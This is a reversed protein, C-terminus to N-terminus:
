QVPPSGSSRTHPVPRLHLGSPMSTSRVPRPRPTGAPWSAPEFLPAAARPARGARIVEIQRGQAAGAAHLTRLEHDHYDVLRYLREYAHGLTLLTMAELIILLVVVAALAASV